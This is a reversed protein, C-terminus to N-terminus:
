SKNEMYEKVVESFAEMVIKMHDDSSHSHDQAIEYGVEDIAKKHYMEKYRMIKDVQKKPASINEFPFEIGQELNILLDGKGFLKDRIGNQQHNITVIKDRDFYETKYEMLGEWMFMTIGEPTLALGDLYLNLFDIVYKLLLFVGLGAFIRDLYVIQMQKQLIEFVFYLVGLLLITVVANKIYISGNHGIVHKIDRTYIKKQM